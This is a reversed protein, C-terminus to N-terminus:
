KGGRSPYLISEMERLIDEVYKKGFEPSSESATETFWDASTRCDLHVLDPRLELMASTEVKGAHDSGYEAELKEGTLPHIQIWDFLNDGNYYDKMAENGWWGRGSNKEQFAFIARRAGFRFALDLPMGQQFNESQHYVFGHINRFGTELLNYFLNEALKAVLMSDISITAKGNEPGAVAFSSTGYFFPPLLITEPHLKEMRNLIEETVIGDTGVPLHESHYEVNGICLVVPTRRGIAERIQGPIMDKLRM